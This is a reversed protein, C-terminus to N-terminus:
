LWTQLCVLYFCLFIFTKKIFIKNPSCFKSEILIQDDIPVSKRKNLNNRDELNYPM